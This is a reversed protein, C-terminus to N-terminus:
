GRGRETSLGPAPDPMLSQGFAIRHGDPDILDFDVCGYETPRNMETPELGQEIFEARLAEADEVYLYAAWWQNLPVTGDESRDLGLTVDGRQVICFAPPDGFIGHSAFGARGYFAEAVKTDRVQLVPMSRHTTMTM